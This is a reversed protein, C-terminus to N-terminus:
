KGRRQECVEYHALARQFVYQDIFTGREFWIEADSIAVPYKIDLQFVLDVYVILDYHTNGCQNDIQIDPVPPLIQGVINGVLLVKKPYKTKISICGM